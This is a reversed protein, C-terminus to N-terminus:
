VVDIRFPNFDTNIDFFDENELHKLRNVIIYTIPTFLVEVAVKFIYNALVLSSFASWPFVGLVTAVFTFVSTDVGQGVLTSGITRTWLFRGRTKVKLRALVFANSFEGAFYAVLSALVIAGTSVGGLIADYAAQGFAAKDVTADAGLVTVMREYVYLSWEPAGPARAILFLLLASLGSAFFGSWVVRRSRAYGYVETLIDGFIYTLPFLLTGGDIILSPAVSILKATGVNSMLLATVFAAVVFDLYRYNRM